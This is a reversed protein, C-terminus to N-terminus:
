NVSPAPELKYIFFADRPTPGTEMKRFGWTLFNADYWASLSTPTDSNLNKRVAEPLRESEGGAGLTKGGRIRQTRIKTEHPYALLLTDGQRSLQIQQALEGSSLDDLSVSNDWLLNGSLDLGCIVAHTYRFSDQPRNRGSFVTSATKYQPYYAEALLLYGRDTPILNHVQLLYTFRPDRGKKRSEAIRTRMREQKGPKLYNFFNPLDSFPIFKLERHGHDGLRGLYLGQAYESCHLSYSGVLLSEGGPLPVIEGTLLSKDSEDSLDEKRILRGDYDYANMLLRCRGKRTSHAFVYVSNTQENVELGNLALHYDFLDPLAKSSKDFFSFSVVVPRDNYKGALFAKNGLVKFQSVEDIALVEGEILETDGTELHVKWIQIKDSSSDGCLWYLHDRTHYSLLGEFPYKLRFEGQWKQTLTSDYRTFQYLYSVNRFPDNVTRSVLLGEGGLSLVNFDETKKEDCLIELHRTPVMQAWALGSQLWLLFLLFRKMASTKVFTLRLRCEPLAGPSIAYPLPCPAHPM